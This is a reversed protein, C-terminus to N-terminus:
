FDAAKLVATPNLTFPLVDFSPLLEETRVSKRLWAVFASFSLESCWALHAM